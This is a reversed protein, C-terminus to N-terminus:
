AARDDSDAKKTTIRPARVHLRDMLYYLGMSTVVAVNAISLTCVAVVGARIWVFIDPTFLTGIGKIEALRQVDVASLTVLVSGVLSITLAMFSLYGFMMTAFQRRTLFDQIQEGSDSKSVLAVRGITITKDLDPHTFTAAAVLATVYFGTLTSMLPVIKDM